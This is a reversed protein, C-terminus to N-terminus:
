KGGGRRMTTAAGHCVIGSCWNPPILFHILLILVVLWVALSERGFGIMMFRLLRLAGLEGGRGARGLRVLSLSLVLPRLGRATLGHAGATLAAVLGVGHIHQLLRGDRGDEAVPQDAQALRSQGHLVADLLAM